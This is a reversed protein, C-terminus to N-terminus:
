IPVGVTGVCKAAARASQEIRTNMREYREALMEGKMTIVDRFSQCKHSHHYCGLFEYVTRTEMCFGDVSFRLLEPLSSADTALKCYRAVTLKKKHLVWMLAKKSYKVNVTYGGTPILDITDPELFGKRLMKNCVSAITIAKLFVEINGILMVERRFVRCVRMLVTIDDQCYTELSRWNDFVASKQSDFLALFERREWESIEITGYYSVDAIPGAYDVYEETNFYHPVM